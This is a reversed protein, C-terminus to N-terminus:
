NRYNRCPTRHRKIAFPEYYVKDEKKLKNRYTTSSRFGQNETLFEFDSNRVFYGSPSLYSVIVSIFFTGIVFVKFKWHTRKPWKTMQYEFKNRIEAMKYSWAINTNQRFMVKREPELYISLYSFQWGLDDFESHVKSIKHM